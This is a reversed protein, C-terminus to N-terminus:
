SSKLHTMPHSPFLPNSTSSVHTPKLCEVWITYNHVRIIFVFDIWNGVEMGIPPLGKKEKCKMQCSIELNQMEKQCIFNLKFNKGQM